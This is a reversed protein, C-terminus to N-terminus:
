QPLAPPTFPFRYFYHLDTMGMFEFAAAAM